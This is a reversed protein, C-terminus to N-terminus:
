YRRESFSRTPPLASSSKSAPPRSLTREEQSSLITSVRCFTHSNLRTSYILCSFRVRTQWDKAILDARRGSRCIWLVNKGEWEKAPGSRYVKGLPSVIANPLAPSASVEDPERVDVIFDFKSPNGKFQEVSVQIVGPASVERTFSATLHDQLPQNVAELQMDYKLINADPSFTFVRHVTDTKKAASPSLISKSTLTFSHGGESIVGTYLTAYGVSDAM